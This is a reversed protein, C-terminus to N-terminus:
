LSRATGACSRDLCEGALNCESIEGREIRPPACQLDRMTALLGLAAAPSLLEPRFGAEMAPERTLITSDRAFLGCCLTWDSFQRGSVERHDLIHMDSHRADVSIAGFVLQVAEKPGELVQLFRGGCALLAGSVGLAANRQTAARNIHDLAQRTSAGTQTRSVSHYVLRFLSRARGRRGGEPRMAATAKPPTRRLESSAAARCVGIAGDVCGDFMVGLERCATVIAELTRINADVPGRIRELRKITELSLGARQALETQEIRALARAARIQEGTLMLSRFSM